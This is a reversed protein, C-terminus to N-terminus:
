SSQWGAAGLVQWCMEGVVGVWGAAALGQWCVEGWGAAALGQWCVEGLVWGGAAALVRRCGQGM